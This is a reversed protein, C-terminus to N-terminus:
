GWIATVEDVRKRQDLLLTATQMGDDFFLEVGRKSVLLEIIVDESDVLRPFTFVGSFLDETEAPNAKERNILWCNSKPEFQISAISQGESMIHIAASHLKDTLCRVEVACLSGGDLDIQINPADDSVSKTDLEFAPRSRVFLGDALKCISLRRPNTMSGRFPKEYTQNAYAWNNMWGIAIPGSKPHPVNAWVNMAYFDPGWDIWMAESQKPHDQGQECVSFEYGDFTGIFYRTGSGGYRGGPNFSQFLVWRNEDTEEVPLECLIPCEWVAGDEVPVTFESSLTWGTLSTSRYIHVCDGASLIMIWSASDSHWFVFPDRFDRLNGPNPLIPNGEFKTWTMGRDLSFAASQYECNLDQRDFKDRDHHTFFAIWATNQGDGFGFQNEHDVVISGSFIYGLRDPAMAIKQESWHILDPSTAHGWHMPGWTSSDPHHQFFMHFCGDHYVLGNPDNIWGFDSFFNYAKVM